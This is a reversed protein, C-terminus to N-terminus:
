PHICVSCHTNGTPCKMRIQSFYMMHFSHFTFVRAPFDPDLMFAGAVNCTCCCVVDLNDRCSVSVEKISGPACMCIYRCYKFFASVEM